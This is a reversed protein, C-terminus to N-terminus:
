QTVQKEIEVKLVDMMEVVWSKARGDRFPFWCRNEQPWYTIELTGVAGPKQYHWHVCGPCQQLSGKITRRLDQALCVQEIVREIKEQDTIGSLNIEVEQM